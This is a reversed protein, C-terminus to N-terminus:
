IPLLFRSLEGNEHSFIRVLFNLQYFGPPMVVIPSNTIELDCGLRVELFISLPADIFHPYHPEVPYGLFFRLIIEISFFFNIPLTVINPYRLALVIKKGQLSEFEIKGMFPPPGLKM